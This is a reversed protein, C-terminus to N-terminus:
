IAHLVFLVEYTSGISNLVVCLVRVCFIIRLKCPKSAIFLMKRILRMAEGSGKTTPPRHKTQSKGKKGEKM